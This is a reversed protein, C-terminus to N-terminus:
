IKWSEMETEDDPLRWFPMTIAEQMVNGCLPCDDLLLGLNSGCMAHICHGCSFAVFVERTALRCCLDCLADGPVVICAQSAKALDQKLLAAARRHDMMEFRRQVIKQEYQELCRVLDDRFVSVTMEDSLYPLMDKIELTSEASLALLEEGPCNKKTMYEVIDLWLKRKLAVDAPKSANHKALAVDDRELSLAVAEEFLGMFGTLLVEARGHGKERCLRLAFSPDFSENNENAQLFKLLHDEDRSYMWILSNCVATSSTMRHCYELLRIAEGRHTPTPDSLCVSPIIVDLDISLTRKVLVSVIRQPEHYFLLPFYKQLGGTDNHKELQSIAALFDQALVHHELITSFDNIQEAFWLLEKIRGNDRLLQIVSTDINLKTAKRLFYNLFEDKDELQLSLELGWLCLMVDPITDSGIREDSGRQEMRECLYELLARENPCEMLRLCASEFSYRKTRAFLRAAEVFDGQTCLCEAQAIRVVDQSAPPAIRLAKDFEQRELYLSWVNAVEDDCFVEYVRQETILYIREGVRDQVLKKPVGYRTHHIKINSVCAHSVRSIVQITQPLLLLIHYETVALSKPVDTSPTRLLNSILSYGEILDTFPVVIPPERAVRGQDTLQFLLTGAGTLWAGQRMDWDIQLCGSGSRMGRPVDFVRADRDSMKFMEDSSPGSFCFMQTSTIAFLSLYNKTQRLALDVVSWKYPMERVISITHLSAKLIQGTMTGLFFRHSASERSESEWAVAEIVFGKLQKLPQAECDSLGVYWSDGNEMGIIGYFGNPDLFVKSIRKNTQRKADSTAAFKIMQIDDDVVRAVEGNSLALLLSRNACTASLVQQSSLWGDASALRLGWGM